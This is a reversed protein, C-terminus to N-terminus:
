KQNINKYEYAFGLLFNLDWASKYLGGHKKFYKNIRYKLYHSLINKFAWKPFGFITSVCQHRGNRLNDHILARGAKFARNELWILEFQSPDIIHKVKIKSSFFAKFGHKEANSLFDTESGMVYNNGAPGIDENFKISEFVHSRVAMNPGYISCPNISGDKYKEGLTLAFANNVPIEELLGEPPLEIWFPEIVGGFIDYEYSESVLQYRKLWLPDAVIDDDTLVILDGRAHQLGTNLAANKGQKKESLLRIPLKESYSNIIDGSLDISNNNVIIIEFFAWDIERQKVLSNLMLPLTKEGNFTSFLISIM